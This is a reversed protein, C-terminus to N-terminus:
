FLLLSAVLSHLCSCLRECFIMNKFLLPFISQATIIICINKLFHSCLLPDLYGKRQVPYIFHKFNRLQSIQSPSITPLPHPCGFYCIQEASLFDVSAVDCTNSIKKLWLHLQTKISNGEFASLKKEYTLVKTAKLIRVDEKKLIGVNSWFCRLLDLNRSFYASRQLLNM